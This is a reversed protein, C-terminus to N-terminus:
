YVVESRVGLVTLPLPDPQTITLTPERRWGALPIRQPGTRAPPPDNADEGIQYATLTIGNATFRYSELVHVWVCSIRMLDGSHDGRGDEIHPPLLELERDFNFGVQYPGAPLPPPITDPPYTGLYFPAETVIHVEATGYILPVDDLDDETAYETVGDLTLDDDFRELWFQTGAGSIERRAVVYIDGGLACASVYNGDTVWPTVNRVGEADILQMVALTGDRNVFVAYREPGDQYNSVFAAGSPQDFLHPSLFSKEVSEWMSTSNGTPTLKLVISGSVMIVGGDFDGSRAVSCPLTGGFHNFALSTPRFPNAPSEPVYYPGRDTLLLLQEASHMQIIEVASADGITEVFGEADSADRVDFDFVDAISSGAVASPAGESGAFLIRARHIEVCRPYGWQDSYLQETWDRIAGPSTSAVASIDIVQNPGVLNDDATFATQTVVSTTVDKAGTTSVVQVGFSTETLTVDIHTSDPIAVIIGRSGTSDGLVAEDVQFNASSTVTLRQTARLQDIVTANVLTSSTFGTIEVERDLIRVRAGVHDSTWWGDSAALTIAGTTASPTIRITEPAIKYHPQRIRGNPAEAWPFAQQSWESPGTRTVVHMFDPHTFIITNGSAAFDMRRLTDDDWPCGSLDGASSLAGTDTNRAFATMTGNAFVLVYQASESVTFHEVRAEDVVDLVAEIWSGPRRRAGGGILLRNNLLSGAGAAYQKTDRRLTLAPDIEGSAFNTQLKATRM